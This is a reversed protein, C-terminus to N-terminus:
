REVYIVLTDSTYAELRDLSGVLLSWGFVCRFGHPPARKGVGVLWAYGGSPTAHCEGVLFLVDLRNTQRLSPLKVM